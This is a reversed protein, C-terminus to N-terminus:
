QNQMTRLDQQCKELEHQRQVFEGKAALRNEIAAQYNFYTVTIKNMLQSTDGNRSCSYQFAAIMSNVNGRGRESSRTSMADNLKVLQNVYEVQHQRYSFFQNIKAARNRDMADTLLANTSYIGVVTLVLTATFLVVFKFFKDQREQHNLPIM